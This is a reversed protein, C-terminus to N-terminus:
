HSLGPDEHRPIAAFSLSCSLSSCLGWHMGAWEESGVRGELSLSLFPGKWDELVTALGISKKLTFSGRPQVQMLTPWPWCFGSFYLGVAPSKTQAMSFSPTVWELTCCRPSLLFKERLAQDLSSCGKLLHQDVTLALSDMLVQLVHHVHFFAHCWLGEGQETGSKCNQRDPHLKSETSLTLSVLLGKLSQLLTPFFPSLIQPKQLSSGAALVLSNLPINLSPVTHTSCQKKNQAGGVDELGEFYPCLELLVRPLCCGPMLEARLCQMPGLRQSGTQVVSTIFPTKIAKTFHRSFYPHFIHALCM